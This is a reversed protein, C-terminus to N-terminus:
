REELRVQENVMGTLYILCAISQKDPQGSLVGPNIYSVLAEIQGCTRRSITAGEQRGVGKRGGKMNYDDGQLQLRQIVNCIVLERKGRM